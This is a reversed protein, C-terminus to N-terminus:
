NSSENLLEELQEYLYDFETESLNPNGIRKQLAKIKQQNPTPTFPNKIIIDPKSDIYQYYFVAIWFIIAAASAVCGIIFITALGFDKNWDFNGYLAFTGSIVIFSIISWFLVERNIKM